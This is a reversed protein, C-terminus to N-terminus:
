CVSSMLETWIWDTVISLTVTAHLRSTSYAMCRNADRCGMIADIEVLQVSQRRLAQRGSGPELRPCVDVSYNKMNPALVTM